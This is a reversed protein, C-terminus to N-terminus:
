VKEVTDDHLYWVYGTVSPYGMERYLRVYRKVQLRYSDKKEGSKYDIVYTRGPAVVVRDPRFERGDSDFVTHENLVGAGDAPFWGRASASAIRESLLAFDAEGEAATLRGDLVAADVAARLDDPKLVSSLIDHLVIGGLRRSAAVGAEGDESFFDAADASLRLRGDLAYSRFEAHFSNEVAPNERKMRTFDYPAGYEFVDAEDETALLEQMLPSTSAFAYLVQSFDKPGNKQFSAPPKCSIVHLSKRARTLAVYFTNINDVLQLERERDYDDSFATDSVSNSLRVPFIAESAKPLSDSADSPRCWHWDDKYFRVKEAYPFVVFPFELGKSKHITM